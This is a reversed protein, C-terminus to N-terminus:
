EKAGTDRKTLAEFQKFLTTIDQPLEESLFQAYSDRLMRAIATQIDNGFPVVNNPPDDDRDSMNRGPLRWLVGHMGFQEPISTPNETRSFGMPTRFAWGTSRIRAM